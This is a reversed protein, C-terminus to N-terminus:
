LVRKQFRFVMKKLTKEIHPVSKGKLKPLQAVANSAHRNQLKPQTSAQTSSPVAKSPPAAPISRTTPAPPTAPISRVTHAPPAESVWEWLATAGAAVDFGVEIM